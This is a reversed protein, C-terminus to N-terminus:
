ILDTIDEIVPGPMPIKGEPSSLTVRGVSTAVMVLYTARTAQDQLVCSASMTMVGPTMMMGLALPVPPTKPVEKPLQSKLCTTVELFGPTPAWQHVVELEQPPSTPEPPM